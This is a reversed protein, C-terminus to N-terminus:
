SVTSRIALDNQSPQLNDSDSCQACVGMCMISLAYQSAQRGGIVADNGTPFELGTLLAFRGLLLMHAVFHM